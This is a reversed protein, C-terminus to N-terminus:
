APKLKGEDILAQIMADVENKIVTAAADVLEDAGPNTYSATLTAVKQRSADTLKPVHQWVRAFYPAFELNSAFISPDTINDVSQQVARMAVALTKKDMYGDGMLTWPPAGADNTVEIGTRNLYDHLAKVAVNGVRDPEQEAAQVLLDTFRGPSDINPHWMFCWGGACVPYNATETASFHKAVDGRFAKKAVKGFFSRGAGTLTGGSLFNAKFREIMAEKNIVHGSSFADTLFHDGFANIILPEEPFVSTQAANAAFLQQAATIAQRHHREWATKNDGHRGAAAVFGRMGALTDASFHEYNNEALKLYRKGTAEQWKDTTVDPGGSVYHATSQEVLAKIRSLEAPRANMMQEVSEFMDAMSIIQGYSFAVGPAAGVNLRGTYLDGGTRVHEGTDFLPESYAPRLTQATAVRAAPAQEKRRNTIADLDNIFDENDVTKSSPIPRPASPVTKRKAAAKEVEAIADFDAFRNELEITGLNYTNAYAMNEAIRDFIAQSNKADPGPWGSGGSGSQAPQELSAKDVTKKQVPDFVRQGTLIAQMDAIFDDDTAKPTGPDGGGSMPQAVPISEATPRFPPAAAPAATMLPPATRRATDRLPEAVDIQYELIVAADEPSLTARTSRSAPPMERAVYERSPAVSQQAVYERPGRGHARRPPVVEGDDTRCSLVISTAKVRSCNRPMQLAGHYGALLDEIGPAFRKPDIGDKVGYRSRLLDDFSATLKAGM